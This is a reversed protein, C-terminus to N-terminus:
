AGIRRVSVLKYNGCITKLKSYAKSEFCVFGVDTDGLFQLHFLSM